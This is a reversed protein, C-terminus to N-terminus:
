LVILTYLVDTNPCMSAKSPEDETNLSGTPMSFAVVSMHKGAPVYLSTNMAESTSFTELEIATIVPTKTDSKGHEYLVEMLPLTFLLSPYLM